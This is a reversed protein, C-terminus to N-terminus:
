VFVIRMPSMNASTPGMKALDYARRLLAEDVPKDLWASHTRAERFLVDLSDDAVIKPMALNRHQTQGTHMWQVELSSSAADPPLAPAPIPPEAAIQEDLTRRELSRDDVSRHSTMSDM